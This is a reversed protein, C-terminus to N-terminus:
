QPTPSLPHSLFINIPISPQTYAKRSVCAWTGATLHTRFRAPCNRFLCISQLQFDDVTANIRAGLV